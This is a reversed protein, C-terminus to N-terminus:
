PLIKDLIARMKIKTGDDKVEMSNNGASPRINILATFEIQNGKPNSPYLNGGWLDAQSSGRELLLAEADAHLEGGFAVREKELDVVFKIMDKFPDGLFSHVEENTIKSQFVKIM